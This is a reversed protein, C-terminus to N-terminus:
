PNEPAMSARPMYRSSTIFRPSIPPVWSTCDGEIKGTKKNVSIKQGIKLDPKRPDGHLRVVGKVVQSLAAPIQVDTSNAIFKNNNYSYSHMETSFAREVQSVNGSFVIFRRSQSIEHVTLGQSQLWQRVTEADQSAVGFQEGYQAPTLWKHFSPSSSDHLAALLDASQQEQDTTPALMLLMRGLSQGGAMRGHDVSAKVLPSTSGAVATREENRVSSLIRSQTQTQAQVETVDLFLAFLFFVFSVQKLRNGIVM